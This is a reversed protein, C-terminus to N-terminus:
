AREMAPAGSPLSATPDRIFSAADEFVAERQLDRNLLHWGNPYYATRDTPKLKAAAEFSPEPPIIEDNAGYLYLAPVQVRGISAWAREMLRVLGYLADTRAGWIMLRDRGMRRLEEINDSARIHATLWSPPELVRGGITRATVWLSLRYPLPQSSWGWVAPALLVLRHADPPRDSAFAAVAVAGGMSEGVVAVLANPHRERAVAVAVRLDEIMLEEGGWVGRHPSRGFGRQDFAYTTIGQGAWWPGALHFANAYDNMGHLAVIVAWPEGEAEWRTLGLRTGDFTVFRDGEFRPGRFGLLPPGATQVTPACASAALSSLIFSRRRM